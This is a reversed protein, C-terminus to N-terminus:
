PGCQCKGESLSECHSYLRVAQIEIYSPADVPDLRLQVVRDGVALRGTESLDVLYRHFEGDARVNFTAQLDPSFDEMGDVRWFISGHLNPNDAQVRMDFELDGLAISPIDLPPSGMSPDSGLARTGLTGDRGEFGTLQNWSEWQPIDKPFEWAYAPYSHGLCKERTLLASQIEPHEIIKRPRYEFFYARDLDRSLIPFKDGAFASFYSNGPYANRIAFPFVGIYLDVNRLVIPMGVFYLASSEPFSSHLQRLEHPIAATVGGANAFDSVRPLLSFLYASALVLFLAVAPVRTSKHRVLQTVIAAEAIALGVSPLYVHRAAMYPITTPVLASVLWAFGLWLGRSKWFLILLIGLGILVYSLLPGNTDPLFPKGLADVYFQLFLNVGVYQISLGWQSAFGGVMLWRFAVYAPLIFWFVAEALIARWGFERITFLLDYALFVGPIALVNEKSLAALAFAAAAVFLFLLRNRQRYIVFFVASGLAFFTALVDTRDSIWAVSDPHSPHLMFLVAGALAGFPNKVVVRILLYIWFSNLVHLSINVLYYGAALTHWIVYNDLWLWQVLPRLFTSGYYGFFWYDLDKGQVYQRGYELLHAIYTHDDSLFNGPVIPAYIFLGLLYLGAFVLATSHAQLFRKLTVTGNEM